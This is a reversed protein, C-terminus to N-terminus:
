RAAARFYAFTEMRTSFSFPLFLFFRRHPSFQLSEEDDGPLNLM